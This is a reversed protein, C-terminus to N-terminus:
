ACWNTHPCWFYTCQCNETMIEVNWTKIVARSTGLASLPSIKVGCGLRHTFLNPGVGVQVGGVAFGRAAAHLQPERSFIGVSFYGLIVEVTCQLHRAKGQCWDKGQSSRRQSHRHGLIFDSLCSLLQRTNDQAGSGPQHSKLSDKHRETEDERWKVVNKFYDQLSM